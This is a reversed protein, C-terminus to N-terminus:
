GGPRSRKRPKGVKGVKVAPPPADRVAELWQLSEVHLLFHRLYDPSLEQMLDLAQLVLAHSNLPGANLPKRTSARALQDQSRGSAWVRRFRRVASLEERGAVAAADTGAAQAERLTPSSQALTANLQALPACGVEGTAQAALRKLGPLDGVAQLSRLQRALAPKHAIWPAAETAVAERAQALRQAYDALGTHLKDQLLQRVGAGQARLRQALAELYHFRAPDARWAGDRRWAQLQVQVDPHDLPSPTSM